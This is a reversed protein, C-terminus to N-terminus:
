PKIESAPIDVLEACYLAFKSSYDSHGMAMSEVRSVDLLGILPLGKKDRLKNIAGLMVEREYECWAPINEPKSPNWWAVCTVLEQRQDRQGQANSLVELFQEKIKLRSSM